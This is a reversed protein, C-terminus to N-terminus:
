YWCIDYDIDGPVKKGTVAVTWRGSNLLDDSINSITMRVACDDNGDADDDFIWM